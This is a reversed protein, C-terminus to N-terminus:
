LTHNVFGSSRKVMCLYCGDRCCVMIDGRYDNVTRWSEQNDSYKVIVETYSDSPQDGSVRLGVGSIPTLQLLDFKLVVFFIGITLVM